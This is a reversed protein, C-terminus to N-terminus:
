DFEFGIELGNLDNIVGDSVSLKIRGGFDNFSSFFKTWSQPIEIRITFSSEKVGGREVM